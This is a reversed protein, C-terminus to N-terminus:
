IGFGNECCNSSLKHCNSSMQNESFKGFVDQHSFRHNVPGGKGEGRKGKEEGEEGNGEGEGWYGKRGRLIVV